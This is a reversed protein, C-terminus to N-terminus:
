VLILRVTISILEELAAQALNPSKLGSITKFTRLADRTAAVQKRFAADSSLTAPVRHRPPMPFYFVASSPRSAFFVSAKYTLEFHSLIWSFMYWSIGYFLISSFSLFIGDDLPSLFTEFSFSCPSVFNKPFGYVSQFGTVRSNVHLVFGYSAEILVHDLSEPAFL